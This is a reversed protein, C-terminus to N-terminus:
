SYKMGIPLSEGATVVVAHKIRTKGISNRIIGLTKDFIIAIKSNVENLYNVIEDEGALPHIMNAVAGIRNLAYVIYLAEPISPLAVTVIEGQKVGISNLARACEDIHKFLESFSIDRSFYRIAIDNPYNKNSEYM